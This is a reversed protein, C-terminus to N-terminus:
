WTKTYRGKSEACKDSTQPKRYAGELRFKNLPYLKSKKFSKIYSDNCVWLSLLSFEQLSGSDVIEQSEIPLVLLVSSSSFTSDFGLRKFFQGNIDEM